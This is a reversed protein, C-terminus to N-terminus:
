ERQAAYALAERVIDLARHLDALNNYGEGGNAIKRGNAAVVKWRWQTRTSFLPRTPYIVLKSM